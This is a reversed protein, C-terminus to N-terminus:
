LPHIRILPGRWSQKPVVAPRSGTPHTHGGRGPAVAQDAAYRRALSSEPTDPVQRQKPALRAFAGSSFTIPPGAQLPLVRPFGVETADFGAGPSGPWASGSDRKVAFNPRPATWRHQATTADSEPSRLPGVAGRGRKSSGPAGSGVTGYLNTLPSRPGRNPDVVLGPVESDGKVGGELRAFRGLTLPRPPLALVGRPAGDVRSPSLPSSFLSPATALAGGQADLETNGLISVAALHSAVPRSRSTTSYSIRRPQEM